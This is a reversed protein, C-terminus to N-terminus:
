QSTAASPPMKEYWAGEVARGRSGLARTPTATPAARPAFLPIAGNLLTVAHLDGDQDRATPRDERRHEIGADGHGRVKPGGQLARSTAAMEPM